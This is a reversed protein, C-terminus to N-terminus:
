PARTRAQLVPHQPPDAKLGARAVDRRRRAEQLSVEPYPGISLRDTKGHWKFFYQWTLAAEGEATRRVRAYLSGGDALLFEKDQAVAARLARDTLLKEAMPLRRAWAFRSSRSKRSCRGSRGCRM